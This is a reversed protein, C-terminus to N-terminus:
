RQKAGPVKIAEAGPGKPKSVIDDMRYKLLSESRGM